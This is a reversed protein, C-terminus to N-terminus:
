MAFGDGRIFFVPIKWRIALICRTNAMRIPLCGCHLSTEHFTRLFGARPVGRMTWGNWRTHFFVLNLNCPLSPMGPFMRGRECWGEWAVGPFFTGEPHNKTPTNLGNPTNWSGANKLVNWSVDRSPTYESTPINAMRIPLCGCHLSTEHFTRLFGTRPVSRMAFGDGRIFIRPQPQMPPIANGPVYTGTWVMRGMCGGSFLNGGSPKEHAYEFWAPHEVFRRKQPREV